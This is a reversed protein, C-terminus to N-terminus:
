ASPFLVASVSGAGTMSRVAFGGLALTVALLGGILLVLLPVVWLLARRRRARAADPTEESM